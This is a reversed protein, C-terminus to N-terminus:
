NPIKLPAKPFGQKGVPQLRERRVCMCLEVGKLWVICIFVHLFSSQQKACFTWRPETVAWVESM